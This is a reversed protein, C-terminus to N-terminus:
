RPSSWGGSSAGAGRACSRSKGEQVHERVPRRPRTRVGLTRWHAAGAAPFGTRDAHAPRAPHPKGGTQPRRPTWKLLAGRAPPRSAGGPQLDRHQRREPGAQRAFSPLTTRRPGQAAAYASTARPLSWGAIFHYLRRKGATVRRNGITSSKGSAGDFPTTPTATTPLLCGVRM